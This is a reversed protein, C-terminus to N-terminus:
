SSSYAKDNEVDKDFSNAHNDCQKHITSTKLSEFKKELEKLDVTFALSDPTWRLCCLDKKPLSIEFDM